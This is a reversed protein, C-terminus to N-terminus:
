SDFMLARQSMHMHPKSSAFTWVSRDDNDNAKVELFQLRLRETFLGNETFLLM